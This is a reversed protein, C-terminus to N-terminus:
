FGFLGHLRGIIVMEYQTVYFGKATVRDDAGFDLGIGVPFRFWCEGHHREGSGAEEYSVHRTGAPWDDCPDGLLAYVEQKPMGITIREYCDRLVRTERWQILRAVFAGTGALLVLLGACLLTRRRRSM